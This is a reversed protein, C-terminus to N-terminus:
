IMDSVELTFYKQYQTCSFLQVRIYWVVYIWYYGRSAIAQCESKGDKHNLVFSYWVLKVHRVSRDKAIYSRMQASSELRFREVEMAIEESINNVQVYDNM